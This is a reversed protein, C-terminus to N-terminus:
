CSFNLLLEPRKPVFWILRWVGDFLRHFPRHSSWVRLDYLLVYGCPANLKALGHVDDATPASGAAAPTPRTQEDYYVENWVLAHGPRPLAARRLSCRTRVRHCLACLAAALGNHAPAPTMRLGQGGDPKSSTVNARALELRYNTPAPAEAM